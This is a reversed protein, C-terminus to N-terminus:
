IKQIVDIIVAENGVWAMLVRDGAKIAPVPISHEHYGNGYEHGRHYGGDTGLYLGAVHRCVHYDKKPIAIQFSNTLLSMDNQIVGIDLVLERPANSGEAQMRDALVRALKGMGQQEGNGDAM